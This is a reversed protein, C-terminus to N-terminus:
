ELRYGPKHVIQRYKQAKRQSLVLFVGLFTYYLYLSKKYAINFMYHTGLLAFFAMCTATLVAAPFPTWSACALIMRDDVLFIQVKDLDSFSM